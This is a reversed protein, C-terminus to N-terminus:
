TVSNVQLKIKVKYRQYELDTGVFMSLDSREGAETEWDYDLPAAFRVGTNLTGLGSSDPNWHKGSEDIFDLWTLKAFSDKLYQLEKVNVNLTIDYVNDFVGSDIWAIVGTNGRDYSFFTNSPAKYNKGDIYYPHDDLWIM